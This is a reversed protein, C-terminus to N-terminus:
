FRHHFFMFIASHGNCVFANGAQRAFTFQEMKPAYNWLNRTMTRSIGSGGTVSSASQPAEPVQFLSSAQNAM